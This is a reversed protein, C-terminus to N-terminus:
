GAFMALDLLALTPINSEVRQVNEQDKEERM